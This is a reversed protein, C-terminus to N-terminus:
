RRRGVIMLLPQIHLNVIHKIVEEGVYGCPCSRRGNWECEAGSFYEQFTFMTIKFLRPYDKVLDQFTSDCLSTVAQFTATSTRLASKLLNTYSNVCHKQRKSDSIPLLPSLSTAMVHVDELTEFVTGYVIGPKEAITGHLLGTPLGMVVKSTQRIMILDKMNEISYPLMLHRHELKEQQSLVKINHSSIPACIWLKQCSGALASLGSTGDDIHFDFISNTNSLNMTIRSMLAPDEVTLYSQLGLPLKMAWDKHPVEINAAAASGGPELIEEQFAQALVNSIQSRASASISQFLKEHSPPDGEFCDGIPYLQPLRLKGWARLTKPPPFDGDYLPISRLKARAVPNGDCARKLV